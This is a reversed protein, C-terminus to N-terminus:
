FPSSYELDSKPSITAALTDYIKALAEDSLSGFHKARRAM